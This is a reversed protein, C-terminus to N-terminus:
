RGGDKASLDPEFLGIEWNDGLLAPLHMVTRILNYEDNASICSLVWRLGVRPFCSSRGVCM